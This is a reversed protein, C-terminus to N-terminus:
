AKKLPDRPILGTVQNVDLRYKHKVFRARPVSLPRQGGPSCGSLACASERGPRAARARPSRVGLHPCPGPAEPPASRSLRREGGWAGPVAPQAAGLGAAFAARGPWGDRGEGPEEAAPQAAAGSRGLRAHGRAGPGPLRLRGRLLSLAPGGARLAMAPLAAGERRLRRTGRRGAPSLRSRTRPAAGPAPFPRRQGPREPARTPRLSGSRGARPAPLRRSRACPVFLQGRRARAAPLAM